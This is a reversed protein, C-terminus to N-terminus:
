QEEKELGKKLTEAEVREGIIFLWAFEYYGGDKGEGVVRAVHVGPSLDREYVYELTKTEPNYKTDKVLLVNGMRFKVTATNLFSDEKLVAKLVPRNERIIQGDVPYSSVVELPRKDLARKLKQSRDGTYLMTRKLAYRGTSKTNYSDVVSFAASYGAKDVFKWVEDSYAGYPYAITKMELGTRRELYKKSGIIEKNLKETYEEDTLRGGKKRRSTLLSHTASHSGFTILGSESMERVMDATLANRGGPFFDNYLYVTAPMKYKKLLPYAQTYVSRYGDDITIVATRAPLEVGEELAKIYEDMSIVNANDRLYILHEEFLEPSLFYSDGKVTKAAASREIFRHYCFVNVTNEGNKAAFVATPLLQFVFAAALIIRTM